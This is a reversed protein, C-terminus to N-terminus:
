LIHRNRDRVRDIIYLEAVQGLHEAGSFMDERLTAGAGHGVAEEGVHQAAAELLGTRCGLVGLRDRCLSRGHEHGAQLFLPDFVSAGGETGELCGEALTEAEGGTEQVKGAEVVVSLTRSLDYVFELATDGVFM